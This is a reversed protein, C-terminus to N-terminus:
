TSGPAFIRIQVGTTRHNSLLHAFGECFGLVASAKFDRKKKERGEFLQWQLPLTVHEHCWWLLLFSHALKKSSRSEARKRGRERKKRGRKGARARNKKKRLRTTRCSKRASPPTYPPTPHTHTHLPPSPARWSGQTMFSWLPARVIVLRLTGRCISRLLSQKTSEKSRRGLAKKWRSGTESELVVLYCAMAQLPQWTLPPILVATLHTQKSLAINLQKVM